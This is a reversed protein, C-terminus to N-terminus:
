CYRDCTHWGRPSNAAGNRVEIHKVSESWRLCVIQITLMKCRRPLYIQASKVAHCYRKRSGTLMMIGQPCGLVSATDCDCNCAVNPQVVM